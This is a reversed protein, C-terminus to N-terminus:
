LIGGCSRDDDNLRTRGLREHASRVALDSMTTATDLVSYSLDTTSHFLCLLSRVVSHGGTVRRLIRSAPSASSSVLTKM